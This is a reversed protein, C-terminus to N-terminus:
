CDKKKIIEAAKIGRFFGSGNKDERECLLIRVFSNTLANSYDKVYM